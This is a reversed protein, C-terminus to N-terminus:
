KRRTFLICQYSNIMSTIVPLDTLYWMSPRLNDITNIPPDNTDRVTIEYRFKIDNYHSLNGIVLIILFTNFSLNAFNLLLFILLKNNM